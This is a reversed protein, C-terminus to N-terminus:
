RREYNNEFEYKPILMYWGEKTMVLYDGEEVYQSTSNENGWETFARLGCFDDDEDWEIWSRNCTNEIAMATREQGDYIIAKILRIKPIYERTMLNTILSWDVSGIESKKDEKM